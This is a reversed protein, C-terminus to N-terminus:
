IKRIILYPWSFDGQANAFIAKQPKKAINIYDVSVINRISMLIPVNLVVNARPTIAFCEKLFQFYKNFQMM